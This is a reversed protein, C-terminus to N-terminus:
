RTAAAGAADLFATVLPHVRGELAWREPQYLTGFYFPHGELEVVRVEGSRDRGSARLPGAELRGAYRAGPGYRCHYVETTSTAGYIAAIRSEPRFLIDGRAEVLECSLPAIVPDAAEPETEAHAPRNVGWVAEAYELLAHQFGGCTGLFAVRITSM